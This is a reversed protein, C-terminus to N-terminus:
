MGMKCDTGNYGPLCTCNYFDIGHYCTAENRCPNPLCENTEAFTLYVFTLHVDMM